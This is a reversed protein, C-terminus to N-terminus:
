QAFIHFELVLLLTIVFVRTRWKIVSNVPMVIHSLSVSHDAYSSSLFSLLLYCTHGSTLHQPIDRKDHGQASCSDCSTGAYAPKRHSLAATNLSVIFPSVEMCQRPLALVFHLPLPYRPRPKVRIRSIHLIHHAGLLALLHCIPNLQTKLPNFM